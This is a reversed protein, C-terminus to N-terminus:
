IVMYSSDYGSIDQIMDEVLKKYHETMVNKSTFTLSTDVSNGVDSYKIAKGAAIDAEISKIVYVSQLVILGEEDSTPVPTITEVSNSYSYEFRQSYSTVPYLKLATIILSTLENETYNTKTDGLLNQVSSRILM